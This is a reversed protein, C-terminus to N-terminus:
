QIVRELLVDDSLCHMFKFCSYAPLAQSTPTGIHSEIVYNIYQLKCTNNSSIALKCSTSVLQNQALGNIHRYIYIPINMANYIVLCTKNHTTLFPLTWKYKIQRQATYRFLFSIYLIILYQKNLKCQTYLIYNRLSNNQDLTGFRLFYLRTLLEILFPEQAQYKALLQTMSVNQLDMFIYIDFM